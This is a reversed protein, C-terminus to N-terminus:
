KVWKGLSIIRQHKIHNESVKKSEYAMLGSIYARSSDQQSQKINGINSNLKNVAIVLANDKEQTSGGNQKLASMALMKMTKDHPIIETGRPVDMLTANSPTLEFGKGPKRMLETGQEGVWALGGPASDTGVFFNPIPKTAIAAIQAAGLIGASIAAVVAAPYPHVTSLANLVALAAAIGASFIGTIKEIQATKRREERRKKEIKAEEQQAILNLRQKEQENDGVAKLQIDLNKQIAASQEDLESLRQDSIASFVTKISDAFNSYIGQITKLQDTEKKLA